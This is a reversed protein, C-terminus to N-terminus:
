WVACKPNQSNNNLGPSCKFARDFEDFNSTPGRARFEGPSHVGTLIRNLANADTMKSCWIQGYNIFFMQEASYESLGSLKKDENPHTRIWNQYAQLYIYMYTYACLLYFSEKIGGNDAINEGQTQFGNLTRNIQTVVYNSYQDIICQKRENFKKITDDTWWSIRNGDKDYQRGIDDFGHTIEHGIVVGIAGYNLYKPADKNFFPMQLIGAPFIIQNRPPSYFANVITPPSAGWAKRDVLERLMRLNENAKIKLLKLVNSIYSENFIYQQKASEDFYQKIYIKSLAFGMNSNIYSGCTISRPRQAFTGRYAEDFPDKLARYRKPMDSIRSMIFRWIIYNQLVRRSSSDIISSANRLFELESVSVIDNDYLPINSLSYIHQIYNTFGFSTNFTQSLNGVTTRITENQRARQEAPTWHFTSILKEFNYIDDVESSNVIRGVALASAVDQIFQRYSRTVKTENLYNSRQALAIDSQYVRIFNTSSNKDDNSTGFGYIMNYGYERLRILLNTLNFSTENWSSGQLIPWGGLDNVISLIVNISESEIVTENICTEYFRRANIVSQLNNLDAPIPSTLMDDDPIRNKKLWTGCAFQFFNDCPDATKDISELLYNAAKICYPTDCEETQILIINVCNKLTKRQTSSELNKFDQIRDNPRVKLKIKWIRETNDYDLQDNVTSLMFQTGIMFLIESENPFSSLHSIDAFPLYSEDHVNLEIEFLVSQLEDTLEAPGTYFLALSRNMTTSFFANNGIHDTNIRLIPIEHRSMLQGRYVMVVQNENTYRKKDLEYM